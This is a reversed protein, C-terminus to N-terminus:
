GYYEHARELEQEIMLRKWELEWIRISCKWSVHGNANFAQNRKITKAIKKQIRWLDFELTMIYFM